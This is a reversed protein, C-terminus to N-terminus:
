KVKPFQMSKLDEDFIVKVKLDLKPPDAYVKLVKEGNSEKDLVRTKIAEYARFYRAEEPTVM